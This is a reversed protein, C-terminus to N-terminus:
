LIYLVRIFGCSSRCAPPNFPAMRTRDTIVARRRAFEEYFLVAIGVLRRPVSGAAGAGAAVAMARPRARRRAGGRHQRPARAREGGAPGEGKECSPIGEKWGENEKSARKAGDGGAGERGGEVRMFVGGWRLGGGWGVM